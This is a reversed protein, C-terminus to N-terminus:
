GGGFLEGTPDYIDSGYGTPLAPQPAGFQGEEGPYVVNGYEDIYAGAVPSGPGGGITNGTPLDYYGGTTPGEYPSAFPGTGYSATEPATYGSPSSVPSGRGGGRGPGITYGGGKTAGPVGYQSAALNAMAAAYPDPASKYIANAAAAQQQQEPTVLMSAPNFAPGTPTEGILRSLDTAGQEELGLSTLGLAKLMAANSNPSGPSGTAVGREAGAQEIQNIVDQPLQGSLETAVNGGAQGLYGSLGPLLSSYQAAAGAGSAAGVGQSLGYLSGLNGLNGAIAGPATTTPLPVQPVTGYATPNYIAGLGTLPPAM